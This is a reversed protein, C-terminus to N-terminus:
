SLSLEGVEMAMNRLTSFWSKIKKPLGPVKRLAM